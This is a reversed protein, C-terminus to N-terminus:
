AYAVRVDHLRVDDAVTQCKPQPAERNVSIVAGRYVIMESVDLVYGQQVRMELRDIHIYSVVGSPAHWELVTYHRHRKMKPPTPGSQESSSNCCTNRADPAHHM